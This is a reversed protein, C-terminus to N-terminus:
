KVSLSVGAQSFVGGIELNVAVLPPLVYDPAHPPKPDPVFVKIVYVPGPLGPVEEVRADVGYAFWGGIFVNVPTDTVASGNVPRLRGVGNAVIAIVSGKAAPNEPSNLTGDENFILGRGAGGADQTFIAPAAPASRELVVNSRVGDTEVVVERAGEVPADAPILATLETTSQGLVQVPVGDILLRAEAAFGAGSVRILEGPAIPGGELSALNVVSDIRPGSQDLKSLRGIFVDSEFEISYTTPINDVYPRMTTGAFVVAGSNDITIASVTFPRQDGVYTSFDFQTADANLRTVFGTQRSFPGQLPGVTPFAQSSTNGAVAVNSRSDVAISVATDTQEGGVIKQYVSRGDVTYKTVFSDVPSRGVRDGPLGSYFPPSSPSGTVYISGANDVAVDRIGPRPVNWHLTKAQSDLKWIRSGAVVVNHENDLALSTATDNQAGLYTSWEFSKGDQSLKSVFANTPPPPGPINRENGKTPTICGFLWGCYQGDFKPQVVGATTPYGGRSTGAIYAAGSADVAIGYVDNDDAIKTIYRFGDGERSLKAVFVANRVFPYKVPSFDAAFPLDSSRTQGTVYIDGSADVAVGTIQDSSAGGLYTAWILQGARTLKAVFADDTMEAAGILPEGNAAIRLAGVWGMAGYITNTKFGDSSAVVDYDVSAYVVGSQPDAAFNNVQSARHLEASHWSTGDDDSM